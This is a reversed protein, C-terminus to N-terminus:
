RRTAARLRVSRARPNPDTRGQVAKRTLCEWADTKFLQKVPRDELSHYALVVLRGGTGVRAGAAALLGELAELEGNVLIRLAQFVRSLEANPRPGRALPRLARALDATTELPRRERERVVCRAAQRARRAEGYQRFVEALEEETAGALWTSAPEGSGPDMRLDLPGEFRYSFGRHPSDVQNSSIGLDALIGDVRDWGLEDMLRGLQDFRAHRYLVRPDPGIRGAARSLSEQDRDIALIRSEPGLRQLAARTHGGDGVTADVYRGAPDTIWFGVTSELLVPEHFGDRPRDGPGEDRVDSGRM